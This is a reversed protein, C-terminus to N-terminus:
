SVEIAWECQIIYFVDKGIKHLKMSITEETIVWRYNAACRAQTLNRHYDNTM